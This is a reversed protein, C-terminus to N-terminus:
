ALTTSKAHQSNSDGNRDFDALKGELTRTSNLRLEMAINAAEGVDINNDKCFQLALVGVDDDQGVTLSHM